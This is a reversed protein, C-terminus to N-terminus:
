VGCEASRMGCQLKTGHGSASRDHQGAAGVDPLGGEEIRQDALVESDDRGLRLGGSTRDHAHQRAVVGLVDEGVRGAQEFGLVPQMFRHAGRGYPPDRVGFDDRVQMRERLMGRGVELGDRAERLRREGGDDRDVRFGIEHRGRGRGRGRRGEVLQSRGIGDDDGRERARAETLEEVPEPRLERFAGEM